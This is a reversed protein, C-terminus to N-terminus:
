KKFMPLPNLPNKLLNFFTQKTLFWHFGKNPYAKQIVKIESTALGYKKISLTVDIWDAKRFVEVTNQFNGKYFSRKHHMDIMLSIEDIWDTKNNKILYQKSLEISPELYDFTNATWIGLDHFTAAIAYKEHNTKDKDLLLAFSYIRCVHNRYANFHIGLDTKYESLITDIIKNEDM